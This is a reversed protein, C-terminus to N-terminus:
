NAKQLFAAYDELLEEFEAITFYVTKWQDYLSELRVLDGERTQETGNGSVAELEGSSVRHWYRLYEEVAGSYNGVDSELFDLVADKTNEDLTPQIIDIGRGKRPIFRWTTM